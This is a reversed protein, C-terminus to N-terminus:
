LLREERLQELLEDYVLPDIEDNVLDITKDPRKAWVDYIRHTSLLAPICTDCSRILEPHKYQKMEELSTWCGLLHIRKSCRQWLPEFGPRGEPLLTEAVKPIGICHIEPISALNHFCTIFENATSGQCVAMLNIPKYNSCDYFLWDISERVKELTAYGDRFVDPLILENANCKVAANFTAEISAASGLEILSNDMITYCNKHHIKPYYDVLHTLLMAYDGDFTRAVNKMPVISALKM